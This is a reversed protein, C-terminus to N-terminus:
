SAIAMTNSHTGTIHASDALNTRNFRWQYSPPPADVEGTAIVTVTDGAGLPVIQSQPQVLITPAAFCQSSSIALAMLISNPIKMTKSFRRSIDGGAAYLVMKRAATPTTSLSPM